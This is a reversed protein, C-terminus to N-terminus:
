TPTMAETGRAGSEEATWGHDCGGSSNVTQTQEEARHWIETTHFGQEVLNLKSPDTLTTPPDEERDKDKM